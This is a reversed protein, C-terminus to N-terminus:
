ARRRLCALGALAAALLPLTTTSDPVSPTSGQGEHFTVEDVFIWRSHTSILDVTVSSGTWSGSFTFAPHNNGVFSNPDIAFTTGGIKVQDPVYVAASTWNAFSLSIQNLMVSTAFNFTISPVGGDWGVFEYASAYTLGGSMDSFAGNTLQNGTEDGYGPGQNFSYSTPTVTTAALRGLLALTLVTASVLRLKM